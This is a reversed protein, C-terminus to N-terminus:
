STVLSAIRTAIEDASSAVTFRLVAYLLLSAIVAGISAGILPLARRVGSRGDRPRAGSPSLQSPITETRLSAAVREVLTALEVEGGRVRYKGQFGLLLCQYYARLVEARVPDGILTSLRQFFGEGAQNENFFSLQLTRPLWYERIEGPKSVAVEDALAVLAYGIDQADQSSFGVDTAKRMAREIFVRMRQHLLEPQPRASADLQRIQIIGQLVDKTVENIRDV